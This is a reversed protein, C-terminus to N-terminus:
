GGAKSHEEALRDWRAQLKSVRDALWAHEKQLLIVRAGDVLVEPDCLNSEIARLKTELPILDKEVAQMKKEVHQRIRYLKNRGEAERRKRERDMDRQSPGSAAQLRPEALLDALAKQRKELYYSFPGNVLTVIGDQVEYVKEVTSSLLREDHSILVLTGHYDRLAEELVECSFIDLHNTPEDLILLNLPTLLIRALAIRSKEGGSLVSTKKFVDDGTFLFMGMFSRLQQESSEPSVSSLQELLTMDRNLALEVEQSYYGILVGSNISVSGTSPDEIGALLRSLTSKGEGNRGVIGIRDEREILLDVNDFVKRDYRKSVGKVEVVKLPSRPVEPFRIRMRTPSRHTEIVEMRELMKIRSQVLNRKKPNSRFRNIFREIKERRDAQLMAQKEREAVELKKQDEYSSYNGRYTGMKGFELEVVRKAIRDLFAPDHSIIWAAGSFTRLYEELWLRADLDLHNTPEDLLMLDPDALLLAALEARMRWGGSFQELPKEFDSPRFGLGALLRAARFELTHVDFAELVHVTEALDRLASSSAEEGAGASLDDHLRTQRELADAIEKSHLMVRNLLPGTPFESMEQPLYGIRIGRATGVNGESPQLEGCLVRFLTTKGAGNVGVLATRDGRDINFTLGTFIEDAGFSVGLNGASLIM